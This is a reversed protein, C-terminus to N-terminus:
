VGLRRFTAFDSNKINQAWLDHDFATFKCM